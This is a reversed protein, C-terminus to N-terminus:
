ADRVAVDQQEQSIVMGTVRPVRPLGVHELTIVMSQVHVSVVNLHIVPTILDGYFVQQPHECTIHCTAQLRPLQCKVCVCVCVCVCMCVCVCVGCVCVCARESARESARARVSKCVRM